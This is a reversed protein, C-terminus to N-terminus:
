LFLRYVPEIPLEPAVVLRGPVHVHVHALRREVHEGAGRRLIEGRLPDEHAADVGAPDRVLAAGRRPALRPLLAEERRESNSTYTRNSALRLNTVATGSPLYKLEPDAVLRGSLTVRNCDSM